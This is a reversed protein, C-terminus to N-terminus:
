LVIILFVIFAIFIIFKEKNVFRFFSKNKFLSSGCRSCVIKGGLSRDSIFSQNGCQICIKSGNM